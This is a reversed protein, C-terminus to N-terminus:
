SITKLTLLHYAILDFTHDSLILQWFFIGPSANWLGASCEPVPMDNTWSFPGVDIIDPREELLLTKDSEM